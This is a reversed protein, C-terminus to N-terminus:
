KIVKEQKTFGLIDFAEDVFGMDEKDDISDVTIKGQFMIMLGLMSFIQDNSTPFVDMSSACNKTTIVVLGLDVDLDYRVSSTTTAFM